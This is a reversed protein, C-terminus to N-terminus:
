QCAPMISCIDFYLLIDFSRSRLPHTASLADRNSSSEDPSIRNPLIFNMCDLSWRLKCRVVSRATHICTRRGCWQFMLLSPSVALFALQRKSYLPQDIARLERNEALQFNPVMLKLEMFRKEYEAWFSLELAHASSTEM